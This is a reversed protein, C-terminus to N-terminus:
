SAFSAPPEETLRGWGAERGLPGTGGLVTDAAKPHDFSSAAFAMAPRSALRRYQARALEVLERKFGIEQVGELEPELYSTVIEVEEEYFLRRAEHDVDRRRVVVDAGQPAPHLISHGPSDGFLVLLKRAEPRWRLKRCAAFADAVADVFDGGSTPPIGLLLRRLEDSGASRFGIESSEPYLRYRPLLDPAKARPPPDDGFAVVALRLEPYAAALSEVFAALEEVHETWAERDALLLEGSPTKATGDIALALDLPSGPPPVPIPRPAAYREDPALTLLHRGPSTAVLREGAELALHILVDESEDAPVEARLRVGDHDSVAFHIASAGPLARLRLSCPAGDDAIPLEPEVFRGNEADLARLRYM